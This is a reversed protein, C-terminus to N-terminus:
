FARISLNTWTGRLNNTAKNDL